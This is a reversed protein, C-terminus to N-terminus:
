LTLLWEVERHPWPLLDDVEALVEPDAEVHELDAGVVVGVFRAGAFTSRGAEFDFVTFV